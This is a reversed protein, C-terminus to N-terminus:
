GGSRGARYAFLGRWALFAASAYALFFGAKLTLASWVNGDFPGLGDHIQYWSVGLLLVMFALPLTLALWSRADHWFLPILFSAYVVYMWVCYSTGKIRDLAGLLDDLSAGLGLYFSIRAFSLFSTAAIFLGYAIWVEPGIVRLWRALRTQGPPGLRAAARELRFRLDQFRERLLVAQSVPAVRLHGDKEEVEVIAQITPAAPGHWHQRGFRRRGNQDDLVGTGTSADYQV